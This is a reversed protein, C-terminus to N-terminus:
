YLIFGYVLFFQFISLYIGFYWVSVSATATDDMGRDGGAVPTLLEDDEEDDEETGSRQFSPHKYYHSFLYSSCYVIESYITCVLVLYIHKISFLLNINLLKYAM